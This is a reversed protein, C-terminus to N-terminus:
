LYQLESTIPLKTGLLAWFPTSYPGFYPVHKLHNKTQEQNTLIIIPKKSTEIIGFHSIKVGPCIAVSKPVNKSRGLIHGFRSGRVGYKDGLHKLVRM